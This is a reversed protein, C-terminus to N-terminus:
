AGVAANIIEVDIMFILVLYESMIIELGVEDGAGVDFSDARFFVVVDTTTDAVCSGLWVLEVEELSVIL